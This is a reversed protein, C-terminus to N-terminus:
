GSLMQGGCWTPGQANAGSKWFDPGPCAGRQQLQALDAQDPEFPVIRSGGTTPQRTLEGAEKQIMLLNFARGLQSIHLATVCCNLAADSMAARNEFREQVLRAM